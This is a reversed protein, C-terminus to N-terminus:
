EDGESLLHRIRSIIMDMAVRNHGGEPVIVDAYRKSPEVFELHMPRVTSLYQQVVSEPSRGREEVDRRLRRIFRIDPDTDVFIRIDMLDRLARETFILIGEVLVIPRPSVIRTEDSRTHSTFDYIPVAVPEWRRLAILHEILLATDLSDPHDYNREAREGLPLHSNDHYYSDHQLYAIREPGIRELIQRSVTTKGSGSGGAVGIVIPSKPAM